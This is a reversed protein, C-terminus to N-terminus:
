KAGRSGASKVRVIQIGSLDANDGDWDVLGDERLRRLVEAVELYRPKGMAHGVEQMLRPLSVEGRHNLLAGLSARVLAEVAADATATELTRAVNVVTAESAGTGAIMKRIDDESPLREPLEQILNSVLSRLEGIESLLHQKEGRASRTGLWYFIVSILIAGLIGVLTATAGSM